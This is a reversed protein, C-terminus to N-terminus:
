EIFSSPAHEGEERYTTGFIWDGLPYSINFNFRAMLSQQHHRMHHVRLARLGPLKFVVSNEPLHYALHLWEYNLFYAWSTIVFLLAANTTTALSLLWGAPLAFVVGFFVILVPPFLIMIADKHNECAMAENTFYRHHQLTHRKFVGGLGWKRHHMPIRHGWYEVLNAYVFTLPLTLWELPSVDELRWACFLIM